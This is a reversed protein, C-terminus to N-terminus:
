VEGRAIGEILHAARELTEAKDKLKDLSRVPMSTRPNRALRERNRDIFRWYLATFPCGKEGTRRKPDYPCGGCHESMRNIYAGGSAYPKSAMRGGDAHLGMGIVNPVMVWEAADVFSREMWDLLAQPEVEAILSLNALVMLREIHHAWGREQVAESVHQVCAMRTKSPDEFAPPLPRSADLANLERYEPMWLWYLGWVYERWGIVQRIFGEVSAIPAKGARYAAEAADCVEAPSLLGLNLAPSLLAHAVHWSERPMADQHPGFVPLVTTVFHELQALAQSRSTAWWGTPPAGFADDGAAALAAEDVEDLAFRLPEPWRGDRPPPERNEEDFNWRGGAPEDDDMLIGLRTRQWRYFSEMRLSKRGEAWAAFDAPACLFHDNPTLVVDQAALRAAGEYRSPTMAVIEDPALEARHAAIGAAMSAERRYDVEFGAERREEAFRRMAAVYLHIRQRHWRRGRIRAASEIMLLRTDDPQAGRLSSLDANLQDGLVLVTRM